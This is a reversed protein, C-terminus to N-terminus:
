PPLEAPPVLGAPVIRGRGSKTPFGSAFIIENGPKDPADCPYTVSDERELREWTINKLSPMVKAMEAFIDKPHTYKWALGIRRAIEQILEWDQRAEGPSPVAIRGLQVQRNTNTYTGIKEAHATAPLIVDAHWATETMFIDQVVLHELKALAMRAHNQDPDSMAPNEGMVYMGKIEGAEIAHM